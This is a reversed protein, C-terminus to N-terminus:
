SIINAVYFWLDMKAQKFVCALMWPEFYASAVHEMLIWFEIQVSLYFKIYCLHMAWWYKETGKVSNKNKIIKKLKIFKITLKVTRDKLCLLNKFFFYSNFIHKIVSRQTLDLCAASYLLFGWPKWERRNVWELLNYFIKHVIIRFTIYVWPLCLKFILSIYLSFHFIGRM